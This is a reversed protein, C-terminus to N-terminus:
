TLKPLRETRGVPVPHRRWMVHFHKAGSNFVILEVKRFREQTQTNSYFITIESTTYPKAFLNPDPDLSLDLRLLITHEQRPALHGIVQVWKQPKSGSKAPNLYTECEILIGALAINGHNILQFEIAAKDFHPTEVEVWKPVGVVTVTADHERPEIFDRQENWARFTAFFLFALGIPRSYSHIFFGWDAQATSTRFIYPEVLPALTLIVGTLLLYIHKVVARLYEVFRDALKITRALIPM